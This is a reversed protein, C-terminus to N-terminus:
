GKLNTLTQTMENVAQIVQSNSSFVRQSLIMESFEHAIDVNSNELSSSNIQGAAESNAYSIVVDGTSGDAPIAFATGDISQLGDPNTFTALPIQYVPLSNGSSFQLTILGDSDIFTSSPQGAPAGNQELELTQYVGSYQTLRSIEVSIGDTSGFPLDDANLSLFVEGNADETTNLRGDSGFNLMGQTITTDTGTGDDAVVTLEWWGFANTDSTDTITPLDGQGPYVSTSYDSATIDFDPEYTYDPTADPDQTFQFGNSGLVNASTGTLDLTVSPDLARVVLQNNTGSLSALFAQDGATNTFNNIVDVVDQLTQAQNLSTDATTGVFDVTLTDTGDGIVLQDGTIIAPTPSDTDDVLIDSAEVDRGIDSTFHAMPGITRRFEFSIDQATGTDDYVTLTRSFSADINNIPLQQDFVQPDIFEDSADLNIALEAEDTEFFETDFVSFDIPVLSETAVGDTDTAYGYLVYGATNRLLGNADEAFKGARTYNLTEGTADESVIFFGNGTISLDSYSSTQEIAGQDSNRNIVNQSVGGALHNKSSYLSSGQTLLDQFAVDTRKYGITTANAINNAISETMRSQALMGSAGTYLSSFLSM